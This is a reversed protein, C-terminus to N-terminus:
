DSIIINKFVSFLAVVILFIAKKYDKTEMIYEVTVILKWKAKKIGIKDM